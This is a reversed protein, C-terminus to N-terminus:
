IPLSKAIEERCFIANLYVFNRQFIAWENIIEVASKIIKEIEIVKEFFNRIFPNTKLVSVRLFLEEFIAILDPLKQV